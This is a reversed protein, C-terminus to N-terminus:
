LSTSVRFGLRHIMSKLVFPPGSQKHNLLVLHRNAAALVGQWSTTRWFFLSSSAAAELQIRLFRLAETPKGTTTALRSPMSSCLEGKRLPPDETREGLRRWWAWACTMLDSVIQPTM